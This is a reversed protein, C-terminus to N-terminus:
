PGREPYCNKILDARLLPGDIDHYRHQNQERQRSPGREIHSLVAVRQLLQPSLTLCHVEVECVIERRLLRVLQDPFSDLVEIGIQITPGIGPSDGASHDFPEAFAADQAVHVSALEDIAEAPKSNEREAMAVWFDDVGDSPLHIAHREM